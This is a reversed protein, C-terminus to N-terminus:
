LARSPGIENWIVEDTLTSVEGGASYAFLVDFLTLRDGSLPDVYATGASLV